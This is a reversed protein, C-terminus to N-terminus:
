RLGEANLAALVAPRETIHAFWANLAPARTLDFKLAHAWRMVTFLWADAISYRNAALYNQESLILNLYRFKATLHERCLAKYTEPTGPRFLPTFTKHLETAIYNLWELTHYRVMSGAPAILNYHPVKDAIYQAIAVSETLITGDDLALAPVQGKPNITLYDEDRETTKGALTVKVLTFNLDAERLVIHPFLSCSGPTYFLKM